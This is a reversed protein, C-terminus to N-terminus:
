GEGLQAKSFPYHLPPTPSRAARRPHLGVSALRVRAERVPWGRSRCPDGLSSREKSLHLDSFM